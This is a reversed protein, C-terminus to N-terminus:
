IRLSSGHIEIINFMKFLRDHVREGYRELFEDIGLKLDVGHGEKYNATIYTKAKITSRHDLIERMLNFKGYNSAIKEAKVDDFYADGVKTREIYSHRDLVDTYGEFTSVIKNATYAKFSLPTFLFLEKLTKMTSTKGNGYSGIILLGKEFSPKSMPSLNPCKFFREDESFYYLITNIQDLRELNFNVGELEKYKDLFRQLLVEYKVIFNEKKIPEQFVKKSYEKQEKSINSVNQAEYEEIQKKEEDSIATKLSKLFSYKRYSIM